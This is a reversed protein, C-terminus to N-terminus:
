KPQGTVFGGRSKVCGDRKAFSKTKWEAFGNAVKDITAHAQELSLSPSPPLAQGTTPNITELM